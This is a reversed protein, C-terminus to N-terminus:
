DFFLHLWKFLCSISMTKAHVSEAIEVFAGVLDEDAYTWFYRANLVSIMQDETLHEWLHLKPTIKFLRGHGAKLFHKSLLTYLEAARQGIQPLLERSRDSLFMSESNLIEYFQCLLEILRKMRKEHIDDTCFETILDKVYPALHRTAAAKARLKPYEGQKRLDEVGLKGRLRDKCKTRKYWASLHDQLMAVCKAQVYNGFVKRICALYWLINGIVDSAFGQDVAHLVDITVCELRLGIVGVVAMFLVPIALGLVRLHNISILRTTGDPLGGVQMWVLIRLSM